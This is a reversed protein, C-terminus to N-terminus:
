KKLDDDEADAENIIANEESDNTIVNNEIISYRNRKFQLDKLSFTRLQSFYDYNLGTLKHRAAITDHDLHITTAIFADINTDYRFSIGIDCGSHTINVILVWEIDYYDHYRNVVMIPILKNNNNNTNIKELAVNCYSNMAKQDIAISSKNTTIHPKKLKLNLWNITILDQKHIHRKVSLKNIFDPNQRSRKPLDNFNIGFENRIQEKTMFTKIRYIYKDNKAEDMENYVIVGFLINNNIDKLEYNIIAVIFQKTHINTYQKSYNHLMQIATTYDLWHYMTNENNFQPSIYDRWTKTFQKDIYINHYAGIPNTKFDSVSYQINKNSNDKEEYDIDFEDNISKYENLDFHSQKLDYKPGYTGDILCEFDEDIASFIEQIDYEPISVNYEAFNQNTPKMNQKYNYDFKSLLNIVVYKTDFEKILAAFVKKLQNPIYKPQIKNQLLLKDLTKNQYKRHGSDQPFKQKKAWSKTEQWCDFIYKNIEKTCMTRKSHYTDFMLDQLMEYFQKQTKNFKEPDDSAPSIQNNKTTLKEEWEDHFQYMFEDLPLPHIQQMYQHIIYPYWDHDYVWDDAWYKMDAPRGRCNWLNLISAMEISKSECIICQGPKLPDLKMKAPCNKCSYYTKSKVAYVEDKTPVKSIRQLAM